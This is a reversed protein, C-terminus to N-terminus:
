KKRSEMAEPVAKLHESITRTSLKVAKADLMSAIAQAAKYHQGLDLKAADALAGIICLLSTRTRAELEPEEERKSELPTESLTVLREIDRAFFLFDKADKPIPLSESGRDSVLVFYGKPFEGGETDRVPAVAVLNTIPWGTATAEEAIWRMNQPSVVFIGTLTYVAGYGTGRDSGRKSWDGFSDLGSNPIVTGDMGIAPEDSRFSPKRLLEGDLTALYGGGRSDVCARLWRNEEPRQFQYRLIQRFGEEDTGLRQIAEDFNYFTRGIPMGAM